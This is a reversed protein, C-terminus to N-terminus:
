RGQEMVARVEAGFAEISLPRRRPDGREIRGSTQRATEAPPAMVMMTGTTPSTMVRFVGQTLGVITPYAAGGSGLFVLVLDGERFSPAGPLLQIRGGAEGGPVKFTVREGTRGKIVQLADLRVLSEIGQRDDTWQGQVDAVRGYVVLAASDVLERFSLPTVTIAATSVTLACWALAVSVLNRMRPTYRV